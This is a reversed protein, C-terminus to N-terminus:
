VVEATPTSPESYDAAAVGDEGKKPLTMLNTGYPFLFLEDM